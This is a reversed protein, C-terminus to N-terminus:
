DVVLFIAFADKIRERHEPLRLLLLAAIAAGIPAAIAFFVRPRMAEEAIAPFDPPEIGIFPHNERWSSLDAALWRSLEESGVLSALSVLVIAITAGAALLRGARAEVDALASACALALA